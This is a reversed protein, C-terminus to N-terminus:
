PEPEEWVSAEFLDAEAVRRALDALRSVASEFLKRGKETSARRADGLVGTSDSSFIPPFVAGAEVLVDHRLRPNWPPRREDVAAELRVGEPRVHLLVSTEFEGAHGVTKRSGELTEAIESRILDWYSCFVIPMGEAALEHAMASLPAVNGGHGNVFIIKRFGHRRVSVVVDRVLATFTEMRLSITGPHMMHHPSFGVSAIKAVLIPPEKSLEAAGLAVRTASLVDTDLPLHAGHQETAGIPIVVVAGADRAAAIEPSRLENWVHSRFKM